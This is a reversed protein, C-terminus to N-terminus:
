LIFGISILNYLTDFLISNCCSLMITLSLSCASKSKSNLFQKVCANTVSPSHTIKILVMGDSQADVTCASMAVMAAMVMVQKKM